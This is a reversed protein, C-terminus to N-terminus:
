AGRGGHQCSCNGYDHLKDDGDQQDQAEVGTRQRKQERQEHQARRQQAVREPVHDVGFAAGVHGLKQFVHADHAAQQQQGHAAWPTKRHVPASDTTKATMSGPQTIVSRTMSTMWRKRTKKWKMRPAQADAEPEMDDYLFEHDLLHDHEPEHLNDEDHM